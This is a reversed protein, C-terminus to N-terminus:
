FSSSGKILSTRTPFYAHHIISPPTLCYWFSLFLAAETVNLRNAQIVPSKRFHNNQRPYKTVMLEGKGSESERKQIVKQLSELSASKRLPAVTATTKEDGEERAKIEREAGGGGGIGMIVGKQEAAKILSMIDVGEFHTTKPRQM